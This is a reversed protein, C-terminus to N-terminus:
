HVVSVVSRPWLYVNKLCLNKLVKTLKSFGKSFADAEESFAKIFGTQPFCSCFKLKEPIQSNETKTDSRVKNGQRFLRIVFAESGADEVRFPSLSANFKTEFTALQKQKNSTHEISSSDKSSTSLFEKTFCIWSWLGLEWL